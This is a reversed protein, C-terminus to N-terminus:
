VFMSCHTLAFECTHTDEPTYYGGFGSINVIYPVPVTTGNNSPPGPHSPMLNNCAQFPAGTPFGLVATSSLSLM